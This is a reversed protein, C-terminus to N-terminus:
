FKSVIPEIELTLTIEFEDIDTDKILVRKEMPGLEDIFVAISPVDGWMSNGVIEEDFTNWKCTNNFLFKDSPISPSAKPKVIYHADTSTDVPALGAYNASDKDGFGAPAGKGGPGAFEVWNDVDGGIPIFTTNGGSVWKVQDEAYEAIEVISQPVHFSFEVPQALRCPGGGNILSFQNQSMINQFSLTITRGAVARMGDDGHEINFSCSTIKYKCLQNYVGTQKSMPDTPMRFDANQIDYEPYLQNCAFSLNVYYKM